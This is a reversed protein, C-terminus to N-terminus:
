RSKGRDREAEEETGISHGLSSKNGGEVPVGGYLFNGVQKLTGGLEEEEEEKM